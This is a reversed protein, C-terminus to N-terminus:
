TLNPPRPKHPIIYVAIMEHVNESFRTNEMGQAFPVFIFTVRDKLVCAVKRCTM